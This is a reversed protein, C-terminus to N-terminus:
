ELSRVDDAFAEHVALIDTLCRFFVEVIEPDFHKGAGSRIEEVAKEITWAKKYPRESLLADFVDAVAVIRGFLPIDDGRLGRPYGSGDWKEHHTYAVMGATQLITSKASTVIKYGIYCHTKMIEWEAADLPGPKLLIKDSIGIKGVDHMPSVNLIMEASEDSLGYESALIQSYRSMRVIHLGTENDRYEAAQGLRRIIELRTDMLEATQQRVKRALMRSQNYLELHTRVRARVIPPSIPKAIYDVGGCEFGKSEDDADSLATVFIVPIDRTKEDQKLAKCTEYGDFDPMMVDLLILDVKSKRAIEIAKKGGTAVKIEYESRLVAKLLSINEPTDDVILIAPRDVVEM